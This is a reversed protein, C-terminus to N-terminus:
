WEKGCVKCRTYPWRGWTNGTETEPHCCLEQVMKLQALLMRRNRQSAHLETEIEQIVSAIDDQSVDKLIM